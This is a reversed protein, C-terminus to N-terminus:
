SSRLWTSTIKIWFVCRARLMRDTNSLLKGHSDAYFKHKRLLSRTTKRRLILNLHNSFPDGRILFSLTFYVTKLSFWPYQLFLSVNKFVFFYIRLRLVRLIKWEGPGTKQASSSGPHARNDSSTQIPVMRARLYMRHIVWGGLTNVLRPHYRDM